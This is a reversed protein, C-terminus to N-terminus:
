VVSGQVCIFVVSHISPHIFVYMCVYMVYAYMCVFLCVYDVFMNQSNIFCWYMHMLLKLM